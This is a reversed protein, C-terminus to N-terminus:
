GGVAEADPPANKPMQIGRLIDPAAYYIGAPQLKDRVTPPIESYQFSARGSAGEMLEYHSGDLKVVFFQGADFFELDVPPLKRRLKSGEM